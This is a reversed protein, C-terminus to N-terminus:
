DLNVCSFSGVVQPAAFIGAEKFMALVTQRVAGTIMANKRALLEDVAWYGGPLRKLEAIAVARAGIDYRYFVSAGTSAEWLYTDVCNDFERSARMLEAGTTVPRLVGGQGDTLAGTPAAPFPLREYHAEVWRRVYSTDSKELSAIIQRDNLDTRIRRVVDIGFLVCSLDRRSKLKRVVGPKRYPAPLRGLAILHWRTIHPLHNLTKRAHPEAYLAALRQYSRARWPRGGLKGALRVLRADMAPAFEAFLAKRTRRDIGSAFAALHDADDRKDGMLAVCLAIFHLETRNLRLLRAAVGANHAAIKELYPTLWGYPGYATQTQPACLRAHATPGSTEHFTM